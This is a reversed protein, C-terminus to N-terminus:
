NHMNYCCSDMTQCMQHPYTEQCGPCVITLIEPVRNCYIIVCHRSQLQMVSRKARTDSQFEANEQGCTALKNVGESKWGIYINHQSFSDRKKQRYLTRNSFSTKAVWIHCVQQFQVKGQGCPANNRFSRGKGVWMCETSSSCLSQAQASLALGLSNNPARCCDNFIRKLWWRWVGADMM